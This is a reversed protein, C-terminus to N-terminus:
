QGATSGTVKQYSIVSPDVQGSFKFSINGDQTLSFDSFTQNQILGSDNFINYQQMLANYSQSEGAMAITPAALASSYTLDAFYIKKVTLNQLVDLIKNVLVHSNLLKQTFSIQNSVNVLQGITEPQFADRTAAINSEAQSIQSELLRQYGFLGLSIVITAIVVLWVLISFISTPEKANVVKIGGDVSKKPIFSTQFQPEM